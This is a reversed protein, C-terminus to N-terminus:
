KQCQLEELIELKELMEYYGMQMKEKWYENGECLEALLRLKGALRAAGKYSPSKIFNEVECIVTASIGARGGIAEFLRRKRSLKLQRM